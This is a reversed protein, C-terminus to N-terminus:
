VSISLTVYCFVCARVGGKTYTYVKVEYIISRSNRLKCCKVQSEWNARWSRNIECKKDKLKEYRWTCSVWKVKVDIKPVTQDGLLAPQLQVTRNTPWIPWALNCHGSSLAGFEFLQNSWLKALERFTNAIQVHLHWVPNMWRVDNRVLTRQGRRNREHM